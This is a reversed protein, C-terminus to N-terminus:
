PHFRRRPPSDIYRTPVTIYVPPSTPALPRGSTLACRHQVIMRSVVLDLVAPVHGLDEIKGSGDALPPRQPRRAVHDPVRQAAQRLEDDLASLRQRSWIGSRAVFRGDEGCDYGDADPTPSAMGTFLCRTM